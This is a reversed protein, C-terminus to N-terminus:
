RVNFRRRFMTYAEKFSVPAGCLAGKMVTL